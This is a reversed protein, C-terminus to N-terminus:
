WYWEWMLFLHAWCVRVCRDKNWVQFTFNSCIWIAFHVTKLLSHTGTPATHALLPICPRMNMMSLFVKQRDRLKQHILKTWPTSPLSVLSSLLDSSHILPAQQRWPNCTKVAATSREGKYWVAKVKEGWRSGKFFHPGEISAWYSCWPLLQNRFCQKLSSPPLPPQPWPLLFMDMTWISNWPRVLASQHTVATSVGPPQKCVDVTRKGVTTFTTSM